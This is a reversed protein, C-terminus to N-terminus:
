GAAKLQGLVDLFVRAADKIPVQATGVTRHGGGGYKLLMSGVDTRCTRDFISHGVTLVVNKQDKGWIVRISVNQNPFLAYEMFRNGALIRKVDRLDVIIVNEDVRSNDAIMSKFLNQHEFYRNTREKVDPDEIIDEIAQTRVMDVLKVVLENTGIRYDQFRELGTRPDVILALLPWGKPELVDQRTFQGSDAKDVAEMLGNEDFKGLKWGGGYYDYIVRACSPAPRSVGEFNILAFKELREEESTHHDFWLGV